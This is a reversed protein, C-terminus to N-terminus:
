FEPEILGYNGDKRRYVLNVERSDANRFMFFEHGLLNMQLIAEDIDMPKIAFRKTRVIRFDKDDEERLAAVSEFYAPKVAAHHIRKALRTRNREIQKELRDVAKDICELINDRSTEEARIVVGNFPITVEVVYRNKETNMMVHAETSPNFFKEMKRLKKTTTERLSPSVDMNKGSIIFKM